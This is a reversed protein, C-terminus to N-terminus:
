HRTGLAPETKESLDILPIVAINKLSLLLIGSSVVSVCGSV